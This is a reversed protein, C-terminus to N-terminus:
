RVGQHVQRGPRPDPVEMGGSSRQPQRGSQPGTACGVCRVPLRHRRCPTGAPQRARHRVACVPTTRLDYRGDLLRLGPHRSSPPAPIIALQHSCTPASSRPRPRAAGQQDLQSVGPPWPMEARRPHAPLGWRPNERALRVILQQVQDAVPPRGKLTTPYTWRRRVMRQHWRLLTEPQVLFVSWRVRPLLRSLGALLARDSPQLRPRPHQRRLVALEHRLALYVFSWVVHGGGVFALLRRRM